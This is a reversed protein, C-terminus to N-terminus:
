GLTGDVVMPQVTKSGEKRRRGHHRGSHSEGGGDDTYANVYSGAPSYSSTSVASAMASPQQQQPRYPRQLEVAIRVTITRGKVTKGELRAIANQAAEHSVLTVVAYCKKGSKSDAQHFDTKLVGHVRELLKKVDHMKAQDHLKSIHIKRHVLGTIYADADQQQASSATSSAAQGVTGNISTAPQLFQTRTTSDRSYQYGSGYPSMYETDHSYGYSGGQVGGDTTGYSGAGYYHEGGYTHQTNGYPSALTSQAM